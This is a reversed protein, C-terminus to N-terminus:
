RSFSSAWVKSGVPAVILLPHPAVARSQTVHLSGSPRSVVWVWGASGVEVDFDNTVPETALPGFTGTLRCQRDFYLLTLSEGTESDIFGVRMRVPDKPKFWVWAALRGFRTSQPDTQLGPATRHNLQTAEKSVTGSLGDLDLLFSKERGIPLTALAPEPKGGWNGPIVGLWLALDRPQAESPLADGAETYSRVPIELWNFARLCENFYSDQGGGNKRRDRFGRVELRDTRRDAYQLSIVIPRETQFEAFLRSAPEAQLLAVIGSDANPEGKIEADIPDAAGHVTFSLQTIPPRPKRIHDAVDFTGASVGAVTGEATVIQDINLDWEVHPNASSRHNGRIAFGCLRKSTRGGNSGTHRSDMAAGAFQFYVDDPDLRTLTQAHGLIPMLLIALGILWGLLM